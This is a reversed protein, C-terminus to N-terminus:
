VGLVVGRAPQGTARQIAAVYLAVQRRYVALVPEDLQDTKFDVVTWGQGDFFALDVVGEVVEGDATVLAVPTERRCTGHTAATRAAALLPHALTASAATVADGVEQEPAGLRRAHVAAIDALATVDADLPAAALVAHVLVGFRAGGSRGRRRPVACVEIDPAEASGDAAAQTVTRVALTLHAGARITADRDAQWDDFRQRDAAVVAEPAEKGLLDEQRLGLRPERDLTLAGPDWWVVGYGDFRHLGPRVTDDSPPGDEPRVLVTDRGFPPCAVATAPHGRRERPPYIAPNLAAVWGREFPADGVAPVVLLDRARTAAVYTIRVGEAADRAAEVAQHELLESPAWGALRAACLGRAADLYRAVPGTLKATMDALIVVPFELGKAKHVTMMRVGDSGEELIPADATARADADALLHEVFARFSGGSGAEHVRALETLHLVNALVQEGSPRLAFGAHARTAALLHAITDAVPRRNRARHLAALLALALAIPEVSPDADAPPPRFPHPKGYAHRYLLLTADDIAFLSGRLTAFVALDDDPWEIAALATRMTEVEERAHFARGGVLLHPLARAELARQYGRTMDGGFSEFRRFLLCVHRASVPVREGPRERETVTWGSEELLWQVFAAVAEPLSREIAYAAIDRQGYPSPVPLAVVPPQGDYDDRFPALPVYSAQLAAPDGSMVPAFADNVLRQIAPVARFSTTLRLEHAGNALLLTKVDLYMGVDARRFRYISQKPDGVLFLKGPVPVTRRWDREAPDAAALLLLLEAQLPDTDQFEDVFLHTFRHQFDARVGDCDRVLTRARLLLDTFDLVGHRQKLDEYRQVVELLDRQVAAALDADAADAFATLAHLFAAHAARVAARAVRPAYFEGWGSRAHTFTYNRALEVFRGELVDDDRAGIATTRAIEDRLARALATDFYLTDREPKACRDTLAAFDALQDLLAALAAGRDFPDRRWPAPFDRWDKLTSSAIRLADSPADDDARRRRRLARRVGAPPNDLCDHLWRTFATDHLAQGEQERLVRFQPDVGSEVPRERLLDACFGHITSVRAEELRALADDLPQAATGHGAVAQRATELEARLRLKLDGAAKETFTVAVIRDVRTRGAQLVAVIRRVLATTKGTGAAAEVVLNRALDTQIANRAAADALTTM